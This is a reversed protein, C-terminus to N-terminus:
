ENPPTDEAPQKETRHDPYREQKTRTWMDRRAHREEAATNASREQQGHRTQKAQKGPQCQWRDTKEAAAGARGGGHGTARRERQRHRTAEDTRDGGEEGREGASRRARVGGEKSEYERGRERASANGQEEEGHYFGPM